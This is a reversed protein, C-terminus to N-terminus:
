LLKELADLAERAKAVGGVEDVLKKAALLESISLDVTHGSQRAKNRKRGMKQRAKFNYVAAPSVTIGQEALAAVVESVKANKNAELYASIAKTKAGHESKKTRAVNTGKFM